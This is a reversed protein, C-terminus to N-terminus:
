TELLIELRFRAIREIQRLAENRETTADHRLRTAMHALISARDHGKVAIIFPFDFRAQYAENLRTIQAFEEPSCQDLGAGRQERASSETLEDAIAAKGALQPHARILRLQAAEGANAVVNAMAHALADVSAFPRQPEVQEAVWPSHEYIGALADIFDTRSVANLTDLTM